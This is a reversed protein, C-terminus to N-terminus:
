SPQQFNSSYNLHAKKLKQLTILTTIRVMNQDTLMIMALDKSKKGARLEIIIMLRGQLQSPYRLCKLSGTTSKKITYYKMQKSLYRELITVKMLKRKLQHQM